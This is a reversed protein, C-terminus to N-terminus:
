RGINIEWEDGNWTKNHKEKMCMRLWLKEWSIPIEGNEFYDDFLDFDNHYQIQTWGFIEQLQDQRPLWICGEIASIRGEKKALEYDKYQLVYNMKSNIYWCFDGVKPFWGGYIEECDCMKIYEKSTDM